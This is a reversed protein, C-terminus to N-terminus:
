KLTWRGAAEKGIGVAEPTDAVHRLRTPSMDLGEPM